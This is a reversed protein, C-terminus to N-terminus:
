QNEKFLEIVCKNFFYGVTTVNITVPITLTGSVIAVQTVSPTFYINGVGSSLSPYYQIPYVNVSWNGAPIGTLTYNFGVLGTASAGIQNYIVYRYVGETFAITRADVIFNSSSGVYQTVQKIANCKVEFAKCYDGVSNVM